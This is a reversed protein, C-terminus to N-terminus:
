KMMGVDTMRIDCRICVNEYNDGRHYSDHYVVHPQTVDHRAYIGFKVYPGLDDHYGVPGSYDVVQKSNLWVKVRGADEGNALASWRVQYVFDHWVDQELDPHSYLIVERGNEGNKQGEFAHRLTIDLRGERYRAALPPSHGDPNNWPVKQDHWQIMVFSNGPEEPFDSPIMTSISYWVTSGPVANNLDRLEARWGGSVRDGPRLEFRASYNGERRTSSEVRASYDAVLRKTSLGAVDFSGGDFDFSICHPNVGTFDWKHVKEYTTDNGPAAAHAVAASFVALGLGFWLGNLSKRIM